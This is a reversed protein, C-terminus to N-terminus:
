FSNLMNNIIQTSQEIKKRKNELTNYVPIWLEKNVDAPELKMLLDSSYKRDCVDDYFKSNSRLNYIISRIKQTYKKQNGNSWIYCQNEIDACLSDDHLVGFLLKHAKLRM